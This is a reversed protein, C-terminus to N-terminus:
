VPTATPLHKATRPLGRLKFVIRLARRRYSILRPNFKEAIEPIGDGFHDVLRQWRQMLKAGRRRLFHNLLRRKM